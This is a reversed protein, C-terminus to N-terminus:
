QYHRDENWMECEQTALECFFKMDPGAREGYKRLANLAENSGHHALLMMVAERTGSLIGPQLLLEGMEAILRAPLARHGEPLVGHGELYAAAARPGPGAASIPAAAVMPCRGRERAGQLFRWFIKETM